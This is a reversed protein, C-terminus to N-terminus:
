SKSRSRPRSYGADRWSKLRELNKPVVKPPLELVGPHDAFRPDRVLRAFAEDGLFGKGIQEHRDVRSGLDKKSDNLHFAFLRDLGITQDFARWTAEYGDDTRLEYGAALAHCTDFCVGTRTPEDILELLAAIEEFTHGLVTGQGATLEILVRVRYGATRGIAWRIASAVRAIGVKVGAGVHAGPHMVLYDVGFAECREVEDVFARRSKWRLEGAPAALNILYSDHAMLPLGKRRGESVFERVEGPDRHPVRWQSGNATFIQIAECDAEAAREYVHGLGGAISVHAGLKV